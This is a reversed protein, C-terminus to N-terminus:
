ADGIEFKLRVTLTSPVPRGNETAPRYRWRKLIHSRAAKLFEPEVAGIPAVAVVRGREDISLTLAIVAGRESSRMSEPYPPRLYEEATALRPGKRVLPPDAPVITGGGTGPGVLPGPSPPQPPDHFTPGAPVPTEVIPPAQTVPPDNPQPTPKPEIRPEPVPPPPDNERIPTITIPPDDIREIVMKTAMVGGIVAVHGLVILAFLGPRVPQVDRRPAYALMMVEQV